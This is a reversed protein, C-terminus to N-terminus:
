MQIKVKHYQIAKYISRKGQAQSAFLKQLEKDTLLLDYLDLCGAITKVAAVRQQISRSIGAEHEPSCEGRVVLMAAELRTKAAKIEEVTFPNDQNRNLATCHFRTWDSYKVLAHFVAMASTAQEPAHEVIAPIVASHQHQITFAAVLAPTLLMEPVRNIIPEGNCCCFCGASNTYICCTWTILNTLSTNSDCGHRYSFDLRGDIKFSGIDQALCSALRDAKGDGLHAMLLRSSGHPVLQNYLSVLRRTDDGVEQGKVESSFIAAELSQAEEGEKLVIKMEQIQATVSPLVRKAHLRDEVQTSVEKFQKKAENLEQKTFSHAKDRQLAKSYFGAYEPFTHNVMYDLASLAFKAQYPMQGLVAAIVDSRKSILATALVPTLQIRDISSGCVPESKGCCFCGAPNTLFCCAWCTIWNTPCCPGSDGECWYDLGSDRSFLGADQALLSALDPDAKKDALCALLVGDSEQPALQSHFFRLDRVRNREAQTKAKSSLIAAKLLQAQQGEDGAKLDLDPMQQMQTKVLAM